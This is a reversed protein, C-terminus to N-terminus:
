EADFTEEQRPEPIYFTVRLVADGLSVADGSQLEACEDLPEGNLFVPASGIPMIQWLANDLFIRCHLRQAGSHVPLRVDCRQSTGMMNDRLLGYRMLRVYEGTERDITYLIAEGLAGCTGGRPEERAARREARMRLAMILVFLFLLLVFWYRALLAALQYVSQSM